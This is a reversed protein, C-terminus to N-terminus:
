DFGKKETEDVPMVDPRMMRARFLELAVNPLASKPVKPADIGQVEIQHNYEDILDAADLMSREMYLKYIDRM